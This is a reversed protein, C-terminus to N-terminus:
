KRKKGLIRKEKKEIDRIDTHPLKKKEGRGYATRFRVGEDYLDTARTVDEVIDGIDPKKGKYKPPSKLEKARVRGGSAYKQVSSGGKDKVWGM